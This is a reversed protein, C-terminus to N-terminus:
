RPKPCREIRFVAVMVTTGTCVPIESARVVCAADKQFVTGLTAVVRCSVGATRNVDRADSVTEATWVAVSHGRGCRGVQQMQMASLTALRCFVPKSGTWCTRLPEWAPLRLTRGRSDGCAATLLEEYGDFCGKSWDVGLSKWHHHFGREEIGLREAVSIEPPEWDPDFQTILTECLDFIVATVAMGRLMAVVRSHAFGTIATQTRTSMITFKSLPM